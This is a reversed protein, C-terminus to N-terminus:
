KDYNKELKYGINRISKIKVNSGIEQLKRRLFTVYVEVNNYEAESDFGWIKDLIQNKNVTDGNSIILMEILNLEKISIQVEKDNCILKANKLDLKIDDFTLIDYNNINNTRKLLNKIRAVLEKTYFPKTIYDDAGHELGNLKDEIESKATLMIVPTEIKENRLTRLIEFGDKYPLMIDLIILDYSNTLAEDEGDNGNTKIEVMFNEKKLIESIADALSFEDEIILIKMKDGMKM